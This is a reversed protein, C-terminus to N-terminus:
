ARSEVTIGEEREVASMGEEVDRIESAPAAKAETRAAAPQAVIGDGSSAAAM